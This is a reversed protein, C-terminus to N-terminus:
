AADAIAPNGAMKRRVESRSEDDYGSLAVSTWGVPTGDRVYAALETVLRRMEGGQSFSPWRRGPDPPFAKWTLEDRYSLRGTPATEFRATRDARAYHFYRGGSSAIAAIAANAHVTREAAADSKARTTM